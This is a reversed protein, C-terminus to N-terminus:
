AEFITVNDNGLSFVTRHSLLIIENTDNPHSKLFEDESMFEMGSDSMHLIGSKEPINTLHVFVNGIRGDKIKIHLSGQLEEM